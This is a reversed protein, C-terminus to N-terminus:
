REKGARVEPRGLVHYHVNVLGREELLRAWEQVRDEKVSLRKALADIRISKKELVLRLMDDIETTIRSAPRAAPTGPPQRPRTKKVFKAGGATIKIRRHRLVFKKKKAKKGTM